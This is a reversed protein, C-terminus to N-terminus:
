DSRKEAVSARRLDRFNMFLAMLLAVGLAWRLDLDDFVAQAGLMWLVGILFWTGSGSVTAPLVGIRAM